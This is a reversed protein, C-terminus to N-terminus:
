RPQTKLGARWQLAVECLILPGVWSLWIFAEGGGFSEVGPVRSVLRCFVFSWVLVYSRTMWERHSDYRKNKAARYAMAAAILWATSLSILSISGSTFITAGSKHAASSSIIIAVVAGLGGGILYLRGVLKHYKFYKRTRGIYLNLLGLFLMLSGGLMHFFVLGFHGTHRDVNSLSVVPFAILWWAWVSSLFGLLLLVGAFSFQLSKEPKSLNSEKRMLALKTKIQWFWVNGSQQLRLL